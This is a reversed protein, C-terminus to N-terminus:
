EVTLELTAQTLSNTSVTLTAPGKSESARLIALATGHYLTIQGTTYNEETCGRGTSFAALSASGEVAVAAMPEAYM